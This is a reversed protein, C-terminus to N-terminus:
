CGIRPLNIWGCLSAHACSIIGWIGFAQLISNQDHDHAQVFSMKKLAIAVLWFVKYSVCVAGLFTVIVGCGFSPKASAYTPAM